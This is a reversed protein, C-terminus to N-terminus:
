EAIPIRGAIIIGVAPVHGATVYLGALGAGGRQFAFQALLEADINIEARPRGIVPQETGVIVQPQPDYARPVAIDDIVRRVLVREKSPESGRFQGTQPQGIRSIDFQEGGRDIRRVISM